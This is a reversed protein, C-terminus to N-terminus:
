PLKHILARVCDECLLAAHKTAPALGGLATEVNAARILSLQQRTRGAMLETVASGAAIAATCGRTKFRVQAVVGDEIEVSLRLIDGCVPNSVEATVANPSDLIGANRPNQFHDALQPSLM